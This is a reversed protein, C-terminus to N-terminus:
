KVRYNEIHVTFESHIKGNTALLNNDYVSYPCNDYQTVSGGAEQVLLVGAAVDWPHLEVEWFGDFRGMAVYALDLAASGLRRVPVGKKIISTFLEGNHYDSEYVNYPFGTVLFAHDFEHNDSVKIKKGNLFAGEGKIATFMENLIPHYVVGCIIEGKYEAAISVSFIPMAHAFNVTGDLPDIIWRVSDESENGSYGSEEALFKHDPFKQSIMNIIALESKKDYETVLNNIGEKSEILFTTGFGERLIEGAKLAAESACKLLNNKM